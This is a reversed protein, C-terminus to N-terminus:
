LLGKARFSEQGNRGIIIHDHLTIGIKELADKVQGTMDIDGRSPTPDGSPHNHVILTPPKM